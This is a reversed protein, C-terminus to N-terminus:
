NYVGDNGPWFSLLTGQRDLVLYDGSNGENRHWIKKFGLKGYFELVKEFDPVHLEVQIRNITDKDM